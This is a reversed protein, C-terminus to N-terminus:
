QAKGDIIHKLGLESNKLDLEDAAPDTVVFIRQEM